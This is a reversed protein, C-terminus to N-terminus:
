KAPAPFKSSPCHYRKASQVDVAQFEKEKGDWPFKIVLPNERGSTDHFTQVLLGDKVTSGWRPLIYTDLNYDYDSGPIM